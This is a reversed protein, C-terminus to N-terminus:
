NCLFLNSSLLNSTSKFPYALRHGKIIDKISYQQVTEHQRATTKHQQKPKTASLKKHSLDCALDM